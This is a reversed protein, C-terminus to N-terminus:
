ANAGSHRDARGAAHAGAAGHPLAAGPRDGAGALLRRANRRDSLRDPSHGPSPELGAGGRRSGGSSPAIAASRWKAGGGATTRAAIMSCGAALTAAANESATFIAKRSCGSRRSRSRVWRPKSRRPACAGRGAARCLAPRSSPRPSLDRMFLRSARSRTDGAARRSTRAGRWYRPDGRSARDGACSIRPSIRASPWASGCGTPRKSRAVSERAEAM